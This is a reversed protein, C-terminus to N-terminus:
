KVVSFAALLSKILQYNEAYLGESELLAVIKTCEDDNLVFRKRISLVPSSEVSGTVSKAWDFDDQLELRLTEVANQSFPYSSGSWIRFNKLARMADFFARRQDETPLLKNAILMAILAHGGMSRNYVKAADGESTNVSVLECFREVLPKTGAYPLVSIEGDSAAKCWREYVPRLRLQNAKQKLFDDPELAMGVVPDKVDQNYVSSAREVANRYVMIISLKLEFRAMLERIVEMFDPQCVESSILIDKDTAAIEAFLQSKLTGWEPIDIVGYKRLGRAAFILKHHSGDPWQGTQPYHLNSFQQSKFFAQIASTGTKAPGVHLFLTRTM